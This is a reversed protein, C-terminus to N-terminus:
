WKASRSGIGKASDRTGSSGDQKNKLDEFVKDDSGNFDLWAQQAPNLPESPDQVQLGMESLADLMADYQAEALSFAAVTRQKSAHHRTAKGFKVRNWKLLYYKGVEEVALVGFAAARSYRGYDFLLEADAVLQRANREIAKLAISSASAKFNM